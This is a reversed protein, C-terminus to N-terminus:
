GLWHVNLQRKKRYAWQWHGDTDRVVALRKGKETISMSNTWMGQWKLKFHKKTLSVMEERALPVKTVLELEHATKAAGDAIENGKIDKHGPIFQIRIPLEDSIILVLQQLKFVQHLYTKPNRKKLLQIGSMSDTLIVAAKIVNKNKFIWKLAQLMAFLEAGLISIHPSIRWSSVHDIIPIAMAASTSM